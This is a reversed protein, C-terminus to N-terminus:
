LLRLERRLEKYDPFTKAVLAWFRSSHNMEMLHCLEHVIVYDRLHAPLLLLRYNFSLSGSRSCSGWRTKQNRISVRRWSVTYAKQFHQLREMILREALPRSDHYEKVSGQLLINKPRLAFKKVKKYLWEKKSQLFAVGYKYSVFFPLTLVVRGDSHLTMRVRRARRSKRLTCVIGQGLDIKEQM